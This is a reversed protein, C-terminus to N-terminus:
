QLPLSFGENFILNALDWWPTKYYKKITRPVKHRRGKERKRKRKRSKKGGSRGEVEGYQYFIHGYLLYLM